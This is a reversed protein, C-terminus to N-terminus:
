HGRLVRRPPVPRDRPDLARHWGLRNGCLDRGDAGARASVCASTWRSRGAPWPARGARSVGGRYGRLATSDDRRRRGTEVAAASLSVRRQRRRLEHAGGRRCDLRVSSPAAPGSSRPVRSDRARRRRFTSRGRAARARRHWDARDAFSIVFIADFRGPMSALIWLGAAPRGARGRYGDGSARWIGLRSGTSAHHALDACRSSCHPHGEGAPRSLADRRVREVRQRDCASRAQVGGLACLRDDGGAQVAALSGRRYRQGSPRRGHSGPVSWRDSRVARAVVAPARVSVGASHELDDGLLYRHLLQRSRAALGNSRHGSADHRAARALWSVAFAPSM